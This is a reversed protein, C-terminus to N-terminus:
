MYMTNRMSLNQRYLDADSALQGFKVFVHEYTSVVVRRGPHLLVLTLTISILLQALICRPTCTHVTYMWKPVYADPLKSTPERHLSNYLCASVVFAAVHKQVHPSDLVDFNVKAAPVQDQKSMSVMLCLVIVNLM